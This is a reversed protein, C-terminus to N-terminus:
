LSGSDATLPCIERHSFLITVLKYIRTNLEMGLLKLLESAETEWLPEQNQKQKPVSYLLAEKKPPAKKNRLM